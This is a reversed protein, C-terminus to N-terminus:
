GGGLLLFIIIFMDRRQGAGCAHLLVHDAFQTLLNM